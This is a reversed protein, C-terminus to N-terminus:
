RKRFPQLAVKTDGQRLMVSEAEIREVTWGDVTDGEQLRMSQGTQNRRVLAIAGQNESTLVGLLTLANPDARRVPVPLPAPAASVREKPPEVPRRRKEFLPRQVTDRLDTLALGALPHLAQNGTGASTSASTGDGTDTAAAGSKEPAAAAPSRASEATWEAGRDWFVVGVLVVALGLLLPLSSRGETAKKAPAM